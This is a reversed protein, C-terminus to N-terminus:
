DGLFPLEYEICGGHGHLVGGDECLNRFVLFNLTAFKFFSRSTLRVYSAKALPNKFPIVLVVKAANGNRYLRWFEVCM